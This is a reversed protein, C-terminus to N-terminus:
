NLLKHHYNSLALKSQEEVEQMLYVDQSSLSSDGRLYALNKARQDQDMGLDRMIKEMNRSFTHRLSKASLNEPLEDPFRNRVLRFFLSLSPLSLPDGEDSLILYDTDLSSKNGLIGRWKMIYQDLCRLLEKNEIVLVRGQRKIRPRPKRKDSPDDLRRVVRLGTIGGFEVDEVRLSLLEGPRLGLTLMIMISVYNRFRVAPDRGFVQEPSDPNITKILFEVQEPELGKAKDNNSPPSQIFSSDLWAILRNKQDRIKEYRTDSHPMSSLHVEYLWSFFQRVTTLRQKYTSPAVVIKKVKTNKSLERRLSIVLSGRIEAENFSTATSLRQLPDIGVQKFWRYLVALENLNRKLTNTSLYLRGLIFENPAAIPLGNGDLLIPFQNASPHSITEVIM